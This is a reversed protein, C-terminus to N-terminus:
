FGQGRGPGRPAVFRPPDPKGAKYRDIRKRLTEALTDDSAARALCYGKEAAFVAERFRGAAAFRSALGAYKPAPTKALDPQLKIGNAYQEGGEDFQGLHVMALGLNVYAEAFTPDLKVVERNCEIAEEMREQRLRVLGLSFHALVSKPNLALAKEYQLAAKDFEGANFYPRGAKVFSHDDLFRERISAIANPGANVFEPINAARDPATFHSLVVPPTSRGEEDVHTLFLQTYPSNTKSSFVLWKSNPSWSHWSNMRDTNCRMRRAEGGEAPIIYLESDAQLLMFSKAKCFVIWKGDPSCKAFFNSMGNDSAGRIPEPEGGKGDNFPIRYLDFLFTEGEELFEACEEKTLLVSQRNRSNRLKYAKNRAFIIQKGDPSWAPNSQVFDPDDAGPLARFTKAEASYVCLIGQIPFFLQSFALDPTAVFVSRDKVTSVVHKGDPSVRSLLGFTHKKDERKYDSWTIIKDKSLVMEDAVPAIVYSGKDNAYDVDMGMVTGDASFSHCNGCVPLNALVTRPPEPSSITGFRWRIHSPDKVAEKFPLNVERYFLPAGVADKSTRISVRGGSLITKPAARNVGLITVTAAEEVSRGKISEWQEAGPTWERDHMLFSLPGRDDSFAVTVLWTDCEPAADEWRFTPPVIEPPFLTEDLPYRITLGGYQVDRSYGALIADATPQPSHQRCAAVRCAILACVGIGVHRVSRLASEGM